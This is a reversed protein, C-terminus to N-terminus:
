KIRLSQMVKKFIPDYQSAQNALCSSTITYIYSGERWVAITIKVEADKIKGQFSLWKGPLFGAYIDGEYINNISSALRAMLEEKNIEFFTTLDIQPPLETVVVNINSQFKSADETGPEKALVVTNYLGEQIVWSSPLLIFFKYKKNTYRKWGMGCGAIIFFTVLALAIVKYYVKLRM